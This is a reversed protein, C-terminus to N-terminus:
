SMYCVLKRISFVPRFPLIFWDCLDLIHFRETVTKKETDRQRQKEREGEKKRELLGERSCLWCKEM